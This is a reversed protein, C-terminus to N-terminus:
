DARTMLRARNQVTNQARDLAPISKFFVFRTHSPCSLGRSLMAAVRGRLNLRSKQVTSSLDFSAYNGQAARRIDAYEDTSGMM